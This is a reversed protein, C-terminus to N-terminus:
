SARRCRLVARGGASRGCRRIAHVAVRHVGRGMAPGAEGDRSEPTWEDRFVAPVAKVIGQYAGEVLLVPPADPTPESPGDVNMITVEDCRASIGGNSCHEYLPTKFVHVRLGSM